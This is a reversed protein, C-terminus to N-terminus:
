PPALGLSPGTLRPWRSAPSCLGWCCEPSWISHPSPALRTSGQPKVTDGGLSDSGRLCGCALPTGVAPVGSEELNCLGPVMELGYHPGMEGM